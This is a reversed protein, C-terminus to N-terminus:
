WEEHIRRLRERSVALRWEEYKRFAERQAYDYGLTFSITAIMSSWFIIDVIYDIMMAGEKGM